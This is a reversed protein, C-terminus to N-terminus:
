KYILLLLIRSLIGIQQIWQNLLEQIQVRNLQTDKRSSIFRYLKISPKQIMKSPELKIKFQYLKFLFIKM